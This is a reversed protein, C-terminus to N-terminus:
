IMGKKFNTKNWKKQRCTKKITIQESIYKVKSTFFSFPEVSNYCNWILTIVFNGSELCDELPFSLVWIYAFLCFWDVVPFTPFRLPGSKICANGFVHHTLDSKVAGFNSRFIMSLMYKVTSKGSKTCASLEFHTTLITKLVCVVILWEITWEHYAMSLVHVGIM